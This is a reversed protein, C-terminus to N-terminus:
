TPLCGLNSIEMLDRRKSRLSGQLLLSPLISPSLTTLFVLLICSGANIIFPEHLSVSGLVAMTSLISHLRTGGKDAWASNVCSLLSASHPDVTIHNEQPVELPALPTHRQGKQRTKPGKGGM